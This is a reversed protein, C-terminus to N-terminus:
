ERGGGGEGESEGEEEREGDGRVRERRIHCVAHSLNRLLIWFASKLGKWGVRVLLSGSSAYLRKQFANRM